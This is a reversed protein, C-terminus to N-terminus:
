GLKADDYTGVQFGEIKGDNKDKKIGDYKKEPSGVTAWLKDGEKSGDNMVFLIKEKLVEAALESIGLSTFKFLGEVSSLM